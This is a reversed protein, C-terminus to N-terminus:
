PFAKECDVEYPRGKRPQDEVAERLEKRAARRRRQTEEITERFRELGNLSRLSRDAAGIEDSLIRAVVARTANQRECSERSAEVVEQALKETDDQQRDLQWFGLSAFAVLVLFGMVAPRGRPGRRGERGQTGPAGTTGTTGARGEAGTAGDRGRENM